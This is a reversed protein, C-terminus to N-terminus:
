RWRSRRRRFRRAGARAAAGARRRSRRPSPVDARHIGLHRRVHLRRDPDGRAWLDRSLPRARKQPLAVMRSHPHAARHRDGLRHAFRRRRAAGDDPVRHFRFVRVPRPQCLRFRGRVPRRRPRRAARLDRLRRGQHPLRRHRRRERRDRQRAGRADGPWAQHRGAALGSLRCDRSDGRRPRSLGAGLRVSRAAPDFQGRRARPHVPRRQAARGHSDAPLLHDGDRPLSRRATADLPGAARGFRLRDGHGGRPLALVPRRLRRHRPRGRLRGARLVGGAGPQDSRM